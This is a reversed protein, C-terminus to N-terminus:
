DRALRRALGGAAVLAVGGLALGAVPLGTTALGEAAAAREDVAGLVAPPPVVDRTMQVGLVQAQTRAAEEAEGLVAARDVGPAAGGGAGGVDGGTTTDGGQSGGGVSAPRVDGCRGNNDDAFDTDNGCGNNGDFDDRNTPDPGYEDQQTGAAHGDAAYPKDVGPAGDPNSTAKGQTGSRGAEAQRDAGGPAADSAAANSGNDKVQEPGAVAPAGLLLLGLLGVGLAAGVKAVASM